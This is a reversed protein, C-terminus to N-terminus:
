SRLRILVHHANVRLKHLYVGNDGIPLSSVNLIQSFVIELQEYVPLFLRKGM